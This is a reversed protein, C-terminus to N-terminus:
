IPTQWNKCGTLRMFEFDPHRIVRKISGAEIPAVTYGEPIEPEPHFLGKTWLFREIVRQTVYSYQCLTRIQVAAEVVCPTGISALVPSTVKNNEHSNYLAEGGWYRFFRHIGSEGAEIPAFLCFWLRGARNEDGAQNNGNLADAITAAIQGTEVLRNIRENLMQVNPLQMGDAEILKIEADTLRTCHWGIVECTDLAGRVDAHAPNFAAGSQVKPGTFWAHFLSEHSELVDVLNRPWTTPDTLSFLHM